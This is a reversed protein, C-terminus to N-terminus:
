AVQGIASYYLAHAFNCSQIVTLKQQYALDIVRQRIKRVV